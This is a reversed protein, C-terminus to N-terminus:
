RKRKGAAGVVRVNAPDTLLRVKNGKVEVIDQLGREEVIDLLDLRENSKKLYAHFGDLGAHTELWADLRRWLKPWIPPITALDARTAVTVGKRTADTPWYGRNAALALAHGKQLETRLAAFLTNYFLPYAYGAKIQGYNASKRLWSATLTISAGDAKPHEGRFAFCIPRGSSDDTMRALIYGAPEPAKVADHGLLRFLNARADVSLPKTAAKEIADIGELRLQVTDKTKVGTGFGVRRGELKAWLTKDRARFRVSDGDPFGLGPLFQGKILTFPM